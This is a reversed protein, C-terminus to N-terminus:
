SSRVPPDQSLQELRLLARQPLCNRVYLLYLQGDDEFYKADYNGQEPTAFSGSLVIDASWGLPM